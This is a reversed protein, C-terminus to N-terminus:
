VQFNGGDEERKRDFFHVRDEARELGKTMKKGGHVKERNNENKGKRKSWATDMGKAAERIKKWPLDSSNFLQTKGGGLKRQEWVPVM